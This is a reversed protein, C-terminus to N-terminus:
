YTLVNHFPISHSACTFVTSFLELHFSALYSRSATLKTTALAHLSAGSADLTTKPRLHVLVARDWTMARFKPWAPFPSAGFDCAISIEHCRVLFSDNPRVTKGPLHVSACNRITQPNQMSTVVSGANVGIMQKKAGDLIINSIHIHLPAADALRRNPILMGCVQVRIIKQSAFLVVACAQRFRLNSLNSGSVGTPWVNIADSILKAYTTLRDVHNKPARGPFVEWSGIFLFACFISIVSGFATVLLNAVVIATLYLGVLLVTSRSM